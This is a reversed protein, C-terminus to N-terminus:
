LWLVTPQQFCRSELIIQWKKLAKILVDQSAAHQSTQPEEIAYVIGVDSGIGSTEQSALREPEVRFFVRTILRKTVSVRNNISISKDGVISVSKFVDAWKLKDIDARDPNLSEAVSPNMEKLKELIRNVVDEIINTSM